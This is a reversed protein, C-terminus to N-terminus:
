VASVAYTKAAIKWGGSTKVLSLLDDFRNPPHSATVRAMAVTGIVEVAFVANTNAHGEDRASKRGRVRALWDDRLMVAAQGDATGTFLASQPLFLEALQDADGDYLANLYAWATAEVAAIDSTM